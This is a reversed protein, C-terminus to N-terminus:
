LSRVPKNKKPMVECYDFAMQVVAGQKRFQNVVGSQECHKKANLASPYGVPELGRLAAIASMSPSPLGSIATALRLELETETKLFATASGSTTGEPVLGTLPVIRWVRIM